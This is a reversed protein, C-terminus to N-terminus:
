RELALKVGLGAFLIGTLRTVAKQSRTLWRAVPPYGTFCAVFGYWVTATLVVTAVIGLKFWLPALPPVAVAFLSAFFVAAKPNSLDVALGRRLAQWGTAARPPSPSGAMGTSRRAELLMRIGVYILYLAGAIKVAQYAWAASQFLAGLGILSAAAWIATGIGIGGSVILGNRRGDRMTTHVTALFNPGPSMVTVLWVGAITAFSTWLEASM